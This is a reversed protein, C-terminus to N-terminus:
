VSAFLGVNCSEPDNWLVTAPGPSRGVVRFALSNTKSFGWVAGSSFMGSLFQRCQTTDSKALSFFVPLLVVNPLLSFSTCVGNLIALQGRILCRGDLGARGKACWQAFLLVERPRLIGLKFPNEYSGCAAYDLLNKIDVILFSYQLYSSRQLLNKFKQVMWTLDCFAADLM